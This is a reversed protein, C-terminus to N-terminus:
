AFNQQEIAIILKNRTRNWHSKKNFLGSLKMHIYIQIPIQKLKNEAPLDSSKEPKYKGRCGKTQIM